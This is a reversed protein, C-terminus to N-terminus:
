VHARGIEAAILKWKGAGWFLTGACSTMMRGLITSHSEGATVVGNMAYRVETGGGSLTIAEDCVNAAVSFATDDVDSDQMGYASTIYDRVCLAANASWATTDSRPDYVKKGKVVATILPVGNAFVDQDFEYRVYLYAIGNGVFAGTVQNSEALLDADVTTQDGLHKRIRIKDKWRGDVLGTSANWTVVEDNIYIDGIEDVEHGALSIIQHLFRNNNGTTEYYTVTGGVRAQGYIFQHPSVADKRNVLIGSSSMAGLDPTPMLAQLAWSTVASIALTAGITFLVAGATSLGLTGTAFVFLTVPDRPSRDWDAHRMVNYPVKM